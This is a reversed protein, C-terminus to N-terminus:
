PNSSSASIHDKDLIKRCEDDKWLSKKSNFFLAARKQFRSPISVKDKLSEVMM